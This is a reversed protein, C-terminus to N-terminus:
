IGELLKDLIPVIVSSDSRALCEKRQISWILRMPSLELCDCIELLTDFNVAQLGSEIKSVTAVSKNLSAALDRQTLGRERRRRSIAQGLKQGPATDGNALSALRLPM